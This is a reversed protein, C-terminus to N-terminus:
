KPPNKRRVRAIDRETAWRWCQRVAIAALTGFVAVAMLLALVAPLYYM